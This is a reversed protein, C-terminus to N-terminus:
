QSVEAYMISHPMPGPATASPGCAAPVFLLLTYRPTLVYTLRFFPRNRYRNKKHYPSLRHRDFM